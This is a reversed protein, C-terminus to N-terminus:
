LNKSEMIAKAAFQGSLIVLPIGGGPHSSGGCYFLNKIKKDRNKPRLFASFM